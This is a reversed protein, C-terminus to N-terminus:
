ENAGEQSVISSLNIVTQSLPAFHNAKKCRRGVVTVHCENYILAFLSEGSHKANPTTVTIFRDNADPVDNEMLFSLMEKGKERYIYRLLPNGTFKM